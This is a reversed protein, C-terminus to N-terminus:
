HITARICSNLLYDQFIWGANSKGRGEGGQKRRRHWILERQAIAAIVMLMDVSHFCRLESFNFSGKIKAGQNKQKTPHFLQAQASKSM